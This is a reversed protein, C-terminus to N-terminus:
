GNMNGFALLTAHEDTIETFKKKTKLDFFPGILFLLYIDHFSIFINTRIFNRRGM